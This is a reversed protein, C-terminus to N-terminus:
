GKGGGVRGLRGVSLARLLLSPRASHYLVDSHEDTIETSGNFIM